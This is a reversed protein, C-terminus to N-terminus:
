IAVIRHFMCLDIGFEEISIAKNPILLVGSFSLSDLRSLSTLNPDFRCDIVDKDCPVWPLAHLM